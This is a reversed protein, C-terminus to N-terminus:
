KVMLKVSQKKQQHKDWVSIIYVGATLSAPLEIRVIEKKLATTVEKGQITRGNNDLLQINYDSPNEIRLNVTSGRMSPNPFVSILASPLLQKVSDIARAVINQGKVSSSCRSVIRGTRTTAYGVVVVGSLENESPTLVIDERKNETPALKCEFVEYGVSSVIMTLEALPKISVSYDGEANTSIMKNLEKLHISAGPIPEGEISLVKGSIVIESPVQMSDVVVPLVSTVIGTTTLEVEGGSLLSITDNKNEPIAVSTDTEPLMVMDGMIMLEETAPQTTSAVSKGTVNDVRSKCAAFFTVLVSLLMGWFQKRAPTAPERLDRGLQGVTFNGCTNGRDKQFYQIIEADTMVSFDIVVKRCSNCYRGKEAPTMSFWNEHCPDPVNLQIKKM